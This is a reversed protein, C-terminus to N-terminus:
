EALAARFMAILRERLMEPDAGQMANSPLASLMIGAGMLAALCLGARCAADKGKLMASVPSLIDGEIKELIIASAQPSSFSHLMMLLRETKATSEAGSLLLDALYEPLSAPDADRGLDFAEDHMAERFLQGKSGFYRCVLAPDVGADGAIERLGVNEYNERAFHRRASALM